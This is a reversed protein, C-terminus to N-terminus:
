LSALSSVQQPQQVGQGAGQRQRAGFWRFLPNMAQLTRASPKPGSSSPDADAAVLFNGFPASSCPTDDAIAVHGVGALVINKAVEASLGCGGAILIKAATLRNQVELGWVRLQRDYVAAQDDTLQEHDAAM